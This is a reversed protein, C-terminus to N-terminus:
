GSPPIATSPTGPGGYTSPDAPNYPATPTTFVGGGPPAPAPGAALAPTGYKTYLLYGGGILVLGGVVAIGIMEPNSLPNARYSANSRFIRRRRAM